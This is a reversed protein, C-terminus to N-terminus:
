GTVLLEAAEVVASDMEADKTGPSDRPSADGSCKCGQEM